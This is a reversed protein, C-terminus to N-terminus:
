EFVISYLSLHFISGFLNLFVLYFNVIVLFNKERATDVIQETAGIISACNIAAGALDLCIHLIDPFPLLLINILYALFYCYMAKRTKRNWSSFDQRSELAYLVHGIALGLTLILVVEGRSPANFFTVTTLEPYPGGGFMFLEWLQTSIRCVSSGFEWVDFKSINQALVQSDAM